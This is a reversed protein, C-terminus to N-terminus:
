QQVELKRIYKFKILLIFLTCLPKSHAFIRGKMIYYPPNFFTTFDVGILESGEIATVNEKSLLRYHAICELADTHTAQIIGTKCPQYNTVLMGLCISLCLPLENNLAM